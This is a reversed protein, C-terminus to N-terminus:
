RITCVRFACPCVFSFSYMGPNENPEPSRTQPSPVLGSDRHNNRDQGRPDWGTPSSLWGSGTPRRNSINAQWQATRRQQISVRRHLGPRIMSTSGPDGGTEISTSPLRHDESTLTRTTTSLEPTPPGSSPQVDSLLSRIPYIMTYSTGPDHQSTHPTIPNSANNHGGHAFFPNTATGTANTGISPSTSGGPNNPARGFQQASAGPRSGPWTANTDGM